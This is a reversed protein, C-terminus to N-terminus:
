AASLHEHDFRPVGGRCWGSLGRAPCRMARSPSGASASCRACTITMSRRYEERMADGYATIFEEESKYYENEMATIPASAPMFGEDAGAAAMAAKLNRIDRQLKEHGIYRIPGVCVRPAMRITNRFPNNELVNRYFDPFMQADRGDLGIPGTPVGLGGAPMRPEFGALREAVYQQFSPKSCEGDTVTDIGAEVQKKVIDAVHNALAAEYAAMDVAQGAAIARLTELMDPPRPLSGTHTTRIHSTSRKMSM